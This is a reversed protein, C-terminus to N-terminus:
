VSVSPWGEAINIMRGKWVALSTLFSTCLDERSEMSLSTCLIERLEMSVFCCWLHGVVDIGLYGGLKRRSLLLVGSCSRLCLLVFRCSGNGDGDVDRDVVGVCVPLWM